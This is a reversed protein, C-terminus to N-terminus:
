AKTRTDVAVSESLEQDRLVAGSLHHDQDPPPLDAASHALAFWTQRPHFWPTPRGALGANSIMRDITELRYAVCGPYVWGNGAFDHDAGLQHLQIFTALVLGGPKLARRFSSLTTTIVDPGAHSFISQAVIFDFSTGFHDVTFDSDNRFVPKKLRILDHGVEREIADDVLWQNPELGFYRSPQLYPILLRGARLSGCGFDLVSHHDRLGLTCLIRFQTAGMFDYQAPPGVYAMYHPAGPALAKADEVSLKRVTEDSM